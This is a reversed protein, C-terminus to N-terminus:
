SQGLGIEDTFHSYVPQRMAARDLEGAGATEKRVSNLMPTTVDQWFDNTQIEQILM